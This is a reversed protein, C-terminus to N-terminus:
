VRMLASPSRRGVYRWAIAGLGYATAAGAAAGLFGAVSAGLLVFAVVLAGNLLGLGAAALTESQRRLWASDIAASALGIRAAAELLVIQQIGPGWLGGLLIEGVGPVITLIAGWVLATGMLLIRPGSM